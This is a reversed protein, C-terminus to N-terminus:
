SEPHHNYIYFLGSMVVVHMFTVENEFKLHLTRKLVMYFSRLAKASLYNTVETQRSGEELLIAVSGMPNSLYM